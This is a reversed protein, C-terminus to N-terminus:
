PALAYGPRSTSPERGLPARRPNDEITSMQPASHTRGVFSWSGDFVSSRGAKTRTPGVMTLHGSYGWGDLVLIPRGTGVEDYTITIDRVKCEM